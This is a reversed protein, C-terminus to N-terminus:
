TVKKAWELLAMFEDVSVGAQKAASAIDATTANKQLERANLSKEIEARLADLRARLQSLDADNLRALGDSITDAM